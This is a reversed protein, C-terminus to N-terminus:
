ICLAPRAHRQQGSVAHRAAASHGFPVLHWSVRGGGGGRGRGGVRAGCWGCWVRTATSPRANAASAVADCLKTPQARARVSMEAPGTEPCFALHVCLFRKLPADHQVGRQARARSHGGKIRLLAHARPSPLMCTPRPPGARTPPPSCARARACVLLQPPRPRLPNPRKSAAAALCRGARPVRAAPRPPQIRPLSLHPPSPGLRRTAPQLRSSNIVPRWARKPTRAPRGDSAAARPAAIVARAADAALPHPAPRPPRCPAFAHWPVPRVAQPTHTLLKAERCAHQAGGRWSAGHSRVRAGVGACRRVNCPISCTISGERRGSGIAAGGGHVQLYAGRGQM